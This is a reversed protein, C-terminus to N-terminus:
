SRSAADATFSVDVYDKPAALPSDVSAVGTNATTLKVGNPSTADDAKQWSGNLGTQAVDGAYIVIDGTLSAVSASGSSNESFNNPMVSIPVGTMIAFAAVYGLTTACGPIIRAFFLCLSKLATACAIFRFCIAVCCLLGDFGEFEAISM